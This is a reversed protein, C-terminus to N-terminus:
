KIIIRNMHPVNDQAMPELPFLITSLSSFQRCPVSEQPITSVSSGPAAGEAEEQTGNDPHAAGPVIRGRSYNSM